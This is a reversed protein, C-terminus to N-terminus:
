FPFRQCVAVRSLYVPFFVYLQPFLFYWPMAAAMLFRFDRDTLASRISKLMASRPSDAREVGPRLLSFIALVFFLAASGAFCLRASAIGATMGIAPGVIVGLNLM